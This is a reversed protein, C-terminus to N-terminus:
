EPCVKSDELTVPVLREIADTFLPNQSLRDLLSTGHLATCIDAASSLESDAFPVLQAGLVALGSDSFAPTIAARIDFGLAYSAAIARVAEQTFVAQAEEQSASITCAVKIHGHSKYPDECTDVLNQAGPLKALQSQLSSDRLRDRFKQFQGPLTAQSDITLVLTTSISVALSRDRATTSNGRLSVLRRSNICACCAENAVLGWNRYSSGYLACRGERGYWDCNYRPGDSDYWGPADSCIPTVQMSVGQGPLFSKMIMDRAVEQLYAASHGPPLTWSNSFRFDDNRVDSITLQQFEQLLAVVSRIHEQVDDIMKQVDEMWDKMWRNTWALTGCTSIGLHIFLPIRYM